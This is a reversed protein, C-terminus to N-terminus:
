SNGTLLPLSLVIHENVLHYVVSDGVCTQFFVAGCPMTKRPIISLIFRVKSLCMVMETRVRLRWGRMACCGLFKRMNANSIFSPLYKREETLGRKRLSTTAIEQECAHFLENRMTDIVLRTSGCCAKRANEVPYVLTLLPRYLPHNLLYFRSM